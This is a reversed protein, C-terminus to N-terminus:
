TCFGREVQPFAGWMSILRAGRPGSAAVNHNPDRRPRSGASLTMAHRRASRSDRSPFRMCSHRQASNRAQAITSSGSYPAARLSARSNFPQVAEATTPAVNRAAPQTTKERMRLSRRREPWELAAVVARHRAQEAEVRDPIKRASGFRVEARRVVVNEASVAPRADAPRSIL